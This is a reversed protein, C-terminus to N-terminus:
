YKMYNMGFYLALGAVSGAMYTSRAQEGCARYGVVEEDTLHTVFLAPKPLLNYVLNMVILAVFLFTCSGFTKLKTVVFNAVVMGIMAGWFANRARASVINNYEQITDADLSELFKRCAGEKGMKFMMFFTSGALIYAVMCQVSEPTILEM